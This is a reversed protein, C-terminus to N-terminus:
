DPMMWIGHAGGVLGSTLGVSQIYLGAQRWLSLFVIAEIEEFGDALIILAGRPNVDKAIM